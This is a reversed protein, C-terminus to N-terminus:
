PWPTHQAQKHQHHHHHHESHPGKLHFTPRQRWRRMVASSTRKLAPSSTIRKLAQVGLDRSGRRSREAAGGSLADADLEAEPASAAVAAASAVAKPKSGRRKSDAAAAPGAAAAAEGAATGETGHLLAHTHGRTSLEREGEVTGNPGAGKTAIFGYLMYYISQQQEPLKILAQPM